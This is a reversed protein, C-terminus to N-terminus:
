LIKSSFYFEKKGTSDRFSWQYTANGKFSASLKANFAFRGCKLKGSALSSGAYGLLQTKDVGTYIREDEARPNM